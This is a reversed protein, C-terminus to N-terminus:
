VVNFKIHMIGRIFFLYIPLTLTKALLADPPCKSVWVRLFSGAAQLVGLYKQFYNRLIDNELM